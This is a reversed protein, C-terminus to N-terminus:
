TKATTATTATTATRATTLVLNHFLHNKPWHVCKILKFYLRKKETESERKRERFEYTKYTINM